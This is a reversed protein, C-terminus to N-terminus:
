FRMFDATTVWRGFADKQSAVGIRRAVRSMLVDRHGESHMWMRVLVRPNMGGRGLTEGAYRADCKDLIAWMSQHYFLDNKALHNNWREAVDDTCRALRLPPLGHAKRVVNVRHQVHKEYVGPTMAAPSTSTTAASASAAPSTTLGASLLFSALVIVVSRGLGAM